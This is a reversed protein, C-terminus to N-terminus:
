IPVVNLHPPRANLIVCVYKELELDGPPLGLGRKEDDTLPRVAWRKEDGVYAIYVFDPVGGIDSFYVKMTWLKGAEGAPDPFYLGLKGEGTPRSHSLRHLGPKIPRGYRYDEPRSTLFDDRFTTITLEPNQDGTQDTM